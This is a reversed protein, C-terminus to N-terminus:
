PPPLLVRNIVHVVTNTTQINALTVSSTNAGNGQGTMTVGTGSVNVRVTPGPLTAPTVGDTLLTSFVRGPVVHYTLIRTLAAPTAIAIAAATFGANTFAQSTPAFVTIATVATVRVPM